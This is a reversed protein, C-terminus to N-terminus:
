RKGDRRIHMKMVEPRRIPIVPKTPTATFPVEPEKPKFLPMDFSVRYELEDISTWGKIEKM